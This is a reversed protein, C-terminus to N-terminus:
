AIDLPLPVEGLRVLHSDIATIIERAKVVISLGIGGRLVENPDEPDDAKNVEGSPKLVLFSVAVGLLSSLSGNQVLFVPSGSSGPIVTAEMLFEPRGGFDLSYHSATYGRRVIPMHHKLDILGRPYGVFAVDESVSRRNSKIPSMLANTDILPQIFPWLDDKKHREIEAVNMVAIDISPDPHYFWEAQPNPVLITLTRDLHPTFGDGLLINFQCTARNEM